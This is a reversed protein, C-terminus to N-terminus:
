ELFSVISLTHDCTRNGLVVWSEMGTIEEGKKM